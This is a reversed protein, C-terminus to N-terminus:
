SYLLKGMWQNSGRTIVQDKDDELNKLSSYDIYKSVNKLFEENTLAFWSQYDKIFTLYM